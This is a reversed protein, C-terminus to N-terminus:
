FSIDDLDILAPGGAEEEEDLTPVTSVKKKPPPAAKKKTEPPVASPLPGDTFRALLYDRRLADFDEAAFRIRPLQAYLEDYTAKEMLVAAPQKPANEERINYYLADGLTANYKIFPVLCKEYYLADSEPRKPEFTMIGPDFFGIYQETKYARWWFDQADKIGRYAPGLCNAYAINLRIEDTLKDGGRPWSLAVPEALTGWSASSGDPRTREVVLRWSQPLEGQVYPLCNFFQEWSFDFSLVWGDALPHFAVSPTVSQSGRCFYAPCLRTMRTRPNRAIMADTAGYFAGYEIPPPKVQPGCFYRFFVPALDGPGNQMGRRLQMTVSGGIEGIERAPRGSRSVVAVSFGKANSLAFGVLKDPAPKSADAETFDGKEKPGLKDIAASIGGQAQADKGFFADASGKHVACVNLAFAAAAFSLTAATAAFLTKPSTM